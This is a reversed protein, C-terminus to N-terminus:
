CHDTEQGPTANVHGHDLEPNEGLLPKESFIVPGQCIM